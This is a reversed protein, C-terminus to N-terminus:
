SGRFPRPVAFSCPCRPSCPLGYQWLMKSCDGEAGRCTEPPKAVMGQQGHWEFTIDFGDGSLTPRLSRYGQRVVTLHQSHWISAAAGDTTASDAWPAIDFMWVSSAPAAGHAHHHW